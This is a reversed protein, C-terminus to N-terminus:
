PLSAFGQERELGSKGSNALALTAKGIFPFHNEIKRLRKEGESSLFYPLSGVLESSSPSSSSFRAGVASVILSVLKWTVWSLDTISNQCNTHLHKHSLFHTVLKMHVVPFTCHNYVIYVNYEIINKTVTRIESRYCM